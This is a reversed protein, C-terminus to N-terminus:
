CYSLKMADRVRAMTEAAHERARASGEFLIEDLYGPRALVEARRQRMPELMANLASALKTKVEV